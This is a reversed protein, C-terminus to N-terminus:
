GNLQHVPRYITNMTEFSGDPNIGIVRSTIVINNDEAQKNSLDPHDYTNIYASRGVVLPFAELLKCRVIKKM